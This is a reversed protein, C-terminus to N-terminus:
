ATHSQKWRDIQQKLKNDKWKIYALLNFFEYVNM